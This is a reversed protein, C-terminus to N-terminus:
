WHKRIMREVKPESIYLHIHIYIFTHKFTCFSSYKNAKSMKVVYRASIKLADLSGVTGGRCEKVYAFCM